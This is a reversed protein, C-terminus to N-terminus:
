TRVQNRGGQKAIYLAQDAKDVMEQVTMAGEGLSAVGVSITLRLKESRIEIPTTAIASRLQEAAERAGEMSTEPLVVVFEEGGYRAVWDVGRIRAAILEAVSRLAMDGASHGHLDNIRKFNDIDIMALGLDRGYRRARFLEQDFRVDFTRRNYIGTLGDQYALTRLHKNAIELEENLQGIQKQAQQRQVDTQNLIQATLLMLATIAVVILTVTLSVGVGPNFLGASLGILLLWGLAFPIGVTAVLLRRVMVGGAADNTIIGVLGRDPSLSLFGVCLLLFMVSTTPEAPIHSGIDYSTLFNYAHAIVVLLAGFGTSLALLQAPKDSQRPRLAGLCLASGILLFGIGSNPPIPYRVFQHALLAQSGGPSRNALFRAITVLGVLIVLGSTAAAFRRRWPHTSEDADALRLLWLSAGALIFTVAAAPSNAFASTILSDPVAGDAAWRLLVLCAIGAVVLISAASVCRGSNAGRSTSSPSDSVAVAIVVGRALTASRYALSSIMNISAQRGDDSGGIVNSARQKTRPRPHM